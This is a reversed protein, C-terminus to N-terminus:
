WVVRVAGYLALLIVTWFVVRYGMADTAWQHFRNLWAGGQTCLQELREHTM